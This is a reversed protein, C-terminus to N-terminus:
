VGFQSLHHDLHKSFLNSWEKASLKGFSTNDLGDFHSEGKSETLKIYDILIKKEAEFQREDKILFVPATSNNKKYPKEGVVMKKVILKLLGRTFINYKLVTKGYTMDYAISVHALMQAVSMKGWLAQTEPTLKEIRNIFHETTKPDFTYQIEM